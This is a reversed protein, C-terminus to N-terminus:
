DIYIYIYIYICVYIDKKVTKIFGANSKIKIQTSKLRPFFCAIKKREVRFHLQKFPVLPSISMVSM